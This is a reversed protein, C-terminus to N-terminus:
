DEIQDDLVLVLQFSVATHLVSLSFFCVQVCNFLKADKNESETAYM